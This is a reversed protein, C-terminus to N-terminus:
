LYVFFVAPPEASAPLHARAYLALDHQLRQNRALQTHASDEPHTYVFGFAVGALAQDVDAADVDLGHARMHALLVAQHDACLASYTFAHLNLIPAHLHELSGVWVAGDRLFLTAYEALDSIEPLMAPVAEYHDEATLVRQLVARIAASFYYHPNTTADKHFPTGDTADLLPALAPNQDEYVTPTTNPWFLTTGSDDDGWIDRAAAMPTSPLPRNPVDIHYPLVFVLLPATM